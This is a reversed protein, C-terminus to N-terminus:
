FGKPKLSLGQARRRLTLVDVQHLLAAVDIQAQAKESLGAVFHQLVDKQGRWKAPQLLSPAAGSHEIAQVLTLGASNTRRLDEMTLGDLALSSFLRHKAAYHLGSLGDPMRVQRLAEINLDAGASKQLVAAHRSQTKTATDQILDRYGVDFINQALFPDAGAGILVPLFKKAAAPDDQAWAAIRRLPAKRCGDADAGCSLLTVAMPMDKNKVAIVFTQDLHEQLLNKRATCHAILLAMNDPKQGLATRYLLTSDTEPLLGLLNKTLEAGGKEFAEACIIQLARAANKRDDQGSIKEALTFALADHGGGIAAIAANKIETVNLHEPYHSLMYAADTGAGQRCAAGFADRLLAARLEEPKKDGEWFAAVDADAGRGAAVAAVTKGFADKKEKFAATYFGARM